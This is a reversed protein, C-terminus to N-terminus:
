LLYIVKYHIFSWSCSTNPNNFPYVNHIKTPDKECKDFLLADDLIMIAEEYGPMSYVEMGCYNCRYYNVSKRITVKTGIKIWDHTTAAEKAREFDKYSLPFIYHHDLSNVVKLM